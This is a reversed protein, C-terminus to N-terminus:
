SRADHDSEHSHRLRCPGCACAKGCDGCATTAATGPWEDFTGGAQVLGQSLWATRQAKLSAGGEATLEYVGGRQNPLRPQGEVRICRVAGVGALVRWGGQLPVVEHAGALNYVAQSDAYRRGGVKYITGPKRSMDTM